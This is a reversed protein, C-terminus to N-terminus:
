AYSVISIGSLIESPLFYSSGAVFATNDGSPVFLLIELLDVHM